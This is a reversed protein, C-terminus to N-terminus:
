YITFGGDYRRADRQVAKSLARAGDEARLAPSKWGEGWPLPRSLRTERGPAGDLGGGGLRATGAGDRRPPISVGGADGGSKRLSAPDAEGARRGGAATEAAEATRRAATEGTGAERRASPGELATRSGTGEGAPGQAEEKQRFAAFARVETGGDKRPSFGAGMGGGKRAPFEAEEGSIGEWPGEAAEGAGDEGAPRLAKEAALVTEWAGPAGVLPGGAEAGEKAAYRGASQPVANGRATGSGAPSRRRGGPLAKGEWATDEEGPAEGDEARGGGLLAWLAARQRELEWGLYDM